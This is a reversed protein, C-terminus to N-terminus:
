KGGKSAGGAAKSAAGISVASSLLSSFGTMLGTGTPSISDAKWKDLTSSAQHNMGEIDYGWAQRAANSQITNVDQEGLFKTSALLDLASGSDTVDLGNAALAARQSGLAQAQKEMAQQADIEGRQLADSRQWAAIKANNAEVQAQYNLAKKQADAQQSASFGAIGASVAAATWLFSM